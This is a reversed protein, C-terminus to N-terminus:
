NRVFLDYDLNIDVRNDLHTYRKDYGSVYIAKYVKDKRFKNIAYNIAEVRDKIVVANKGYKDILTTIQKIFVDNLGLKHDVGSTTVILINCYAALVKTISELNSKDRNEDLSFVCILEDAREIIGHDKLAIFANELSASTHANDYLIKANSSNLIELRGSIGPFEKLYGASVEPAIGVKEAIAIAIMSNIINAKSLLPISVDIISSKWMMSYKIYNKFYVIDTAIFNSITSKVDTSVGISSDLIQKIDKSRIDDDNVIASESLSFLKLKSNWYSELSGHRSIHDISLGTFASVKFRMGNLNCSSLVASSVEMVLYEIGEDVMRALLGYLQDPLPITLPRKGQIVWEKDILIGNSSIKAVKSGSKILIWHILELTTSKGNTGTVGIIKIKEHPYDYFEELLNIYVKDISDFKVVCLKSKEALYIDQESAIAVAGNEIAQEIYDHGNFFKGVVAVFLSGPKVNRSDCTIHKIEIDISGETIKYNFNSLLKKLNM